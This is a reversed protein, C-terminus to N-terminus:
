GIEGKIDRRCDDDDDDRRNLEPWLLDKNNKKFCNTTMQTTKPTSPNATIGYAVLSSLDLPALVFFVFFFFFFYCVSMCEVCVYLSLCLQTLVKYSDLHEPM